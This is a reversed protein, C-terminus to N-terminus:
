TQSYKTNKDLAKSSKLMSSFGGLSGNDHVSASLLLILIASPASSLNSSSFFFRELINDDPVIM